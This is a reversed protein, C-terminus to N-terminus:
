ENGESRKSLKMQQFEMADALERLEEHSFFEVSSNNSLGALLPAFVICRPDDDEYHCMILNGCLDMPVHLNKSM